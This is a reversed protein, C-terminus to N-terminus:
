PQTSAAASASPAVSPAASPAVSAAASPAASAAPSTAPSAGASASPAPIMSAAVMSDLHSQVTQALQSTPDLEVVKSWERQVGAWDPTPQNLYLFGLDYHVEVNNPELGVVISWSKEANALDNANFYVAGRALLAQINKPDIVLIKELWSAAVDFQQGAYYEDALAQLTAIDNPNAALRTMLDGIKAKDVSVPAVTPATSSMATGGNASGNVFANVGVGIAVVAVLAVGGLVIRKWVNPAGAAPAVVFAPAAAVARRPKDARPAKRVQPKMDDHASPTVSAYLAALDEVGADGDLDLDEDEADDEDLPEVPAAPLHDRRAPPTAPGGPVVATPSAPSRLASGELGVPDTLQVYAADLSATQAHAWGRISAPATALYDSVAMHLSDLDEPSASAPLGLQALLENQVAAAGTPRISPASM